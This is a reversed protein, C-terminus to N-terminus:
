GSLHATLRALLAEYIGGAFSCAADDSADWRASMEVFAHGTTTVPRVSIRAVFNSVEAPSVPSPGDDLRYKLTRELEDVAVLTERFSDNLVRRAGIRDGGPEGVVACTELVGPAWSIDHFDRVAQWVREAPAEVVTSHYTGPM